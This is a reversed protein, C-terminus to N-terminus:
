MGLARRYIDLLAEQEEVDAPTKRRIKIIERIVSAVFGAAKAETYIDKVDAALTRRDEEIREIREIISRLRSAGAESGDIM